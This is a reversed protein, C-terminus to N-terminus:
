PSHIFGVWLSFGITLEDGCSIRGSVFCVLVLFSFLSRLAVCLFMLFFFPLSVAPDSGTPRTAPERLRRASGALWGPEGPLGATM